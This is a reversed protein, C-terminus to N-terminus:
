CWKGWTTVWGGMFYELVADFWFQAKRFSMAEKRAVTLM